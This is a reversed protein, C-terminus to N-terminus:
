KAPARWNQLLTISSFAAEDAVTNILFRGDRSVDYEQGLANDVGGGVIHTQFLPVPTGPELTKDKAQIPAAM